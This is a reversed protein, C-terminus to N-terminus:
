RDITEEVTNATKASAETQGSQCEPSASQISTPVPVEVLPVYPAPVRGFIRQYPQFQPTGVASSAFPVPQNRRLLAIQRRINSLDEQISHVAPASVVSPKSQTGELSAVKAALEAREIWSTALTETLQQRAEAVAVQTSLRANRESLSLIQQHTSQREDLLQQTMELRTSLETKAVLLEVVTAVPLTVQANQLGAQQLLRGTDDLDETRNIAVEYSQPVPPAVPVMIIPEDIAAQESAEQDCNSSQVKDDSVDYCKTGSCIRHGCWIVDGIQFRSVEQFFKMPSATQPALGVSDVPTVMTPKRHVSLPANAVLKTITQEKPASDLHIAFQATLKPGKTLWDSLMGGLTKSSSEEGSDLHLKLEVTDNSSCQCNAPTCESCSSECPCTKAGTTFDCGVNAQDVAAADPNPKCSDCLLHTQSQLLPRRELTWVDHQFAFATSTSVLVMGVTLVNKFVSAADM